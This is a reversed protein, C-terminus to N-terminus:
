VTSNPPFGKTSGPLAIAYLKGGLLASPASPKLNAISCEGVLISQVHLKSVERAQEPIAKARGGASMGHLYAVTVLLAMLSMM